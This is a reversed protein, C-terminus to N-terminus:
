GGKSAKKGIARRGKFQDLKQERRMRMSRNEWRQERRSHGVNVVIGYDSDLNREIAMFKNRIKGILHSKERRQIENSCGKQFKDSKM